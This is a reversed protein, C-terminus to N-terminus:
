KSPLGECRSIINGAISIRKGLSKYPQVFHILQAPFILLDGEEPLLKNGSTVWTDPQGYYFEITGPGANNSKNLEYEEKLGHPIQLYLVFSVDGGVHNHPPNFDGPTMINIWVEDIQMAVTKVEEGHYLARERVYAWLPERLISEIHKRDDEGLLFQKEIVGALSNSHDTHTQRGRALLDKCVSQPLKTKHLYPGWHYYTKPQNVSM